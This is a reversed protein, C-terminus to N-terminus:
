RDPSFAARITGFRFEGLLRRLRLATARLNTYHSFAEVLSRPRYPHDPDLEFRRIYSVVVRGERYLRGVAVAAGPLSRRVDAVCTSRIQVIRVPGEAAAAPGPQECSPAASSSVPSLPGSVLKSVGARVRNQRQGGHTGRLFVTAFSPWWDKEQLSGCALWHPEAGHRVGSRRWRVGM